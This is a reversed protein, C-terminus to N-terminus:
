IVLTYLREGKRWIKLTCDGRTMDYPEGPPLDFAVEEAPIVFLSANKEGDNYFLYAADCSGLKCKRGGALRLGMERLDPVEVSYGVQKAFWASVDGVEGARFTMPLGSMHSQFALTGVEDLSRIGEDSPKFLVILVLIVLAVMAPVPNGTAPRFFGRLLPRRKGSSEAPALNRDLRAMLTEPTEEKALSDRLTGELRADLRYLRRCGRCQEMHRSADGDPGFGEAAAGELMKKFERCDMM